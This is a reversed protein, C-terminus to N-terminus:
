SKKGPAQQPKGYATGWGFVNAGAAKGNSQ